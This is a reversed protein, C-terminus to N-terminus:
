ATVADTVDAIAAEVADYDPFDPWSDAVWAYAITGDPEIVFAAPRPENIGAMGDLDHVIGYAEAVGNAPDSFLRVDPIERDDILTKHEYPTSISVGVVQVDAAWGRERVENWLYTAPFAGDMSHFLLVAPGDELLTSLATDSWGESHVLPREFDPAQDGVEVHDTPGLDVVAFDLEVAIV